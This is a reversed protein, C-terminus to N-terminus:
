WRFKFVEGFARDGYRLLKGHIRPTVGIDVLLSTLPFKVDEADPRILLFSRGGINMWIFSRSWERRKVSGIYLRHLGNREALEEQSWGQRNRHRRIKKRVLAEPSLDQYSDVMKVRRHEPM